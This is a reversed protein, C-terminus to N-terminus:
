GSPSHELFDLVDHVNITEGTIRRQVLEAFRRQSRLATLVSRLSEDPYDIYERLVPCRGRTALRAFERENDVYEFGACHQWVARVEDPMTRHVSRFFREASARTPGRGDFDAAFLLHSSRLALQTTPHRGVESRHLLALRAFHTGPVNRLPSHVGMPWAEIAARIAQEHEHLVPFVAVLGRITGDPGTAPPVMSPSWPPPAVPGLCHRLGRSVDDFALTVATAERATGSRTELDIALSCIDRRVRAAARVDNTTAHSYAAYYHQTSPLRTDLWARLKSATDPAPYGPYDISPGWIDYVGEAMAEMFAGFYPGWDGDFNATFLIWRPSLRERPQSRDFRHFRGLSVWRATHLFNFTKFQRELGQEDFFRAFWDPARALTFGLRQIPVRRIRTATLLNVASVRGATTAPPPVVV